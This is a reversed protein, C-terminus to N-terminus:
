QRESGRVNASKPIPNDATDILRTLTPTKVANANLKRTKERPFLHSVVCWALGRGISVLSNATPGVQGQLGKNQRESRTPCQRQLTDFRQMHPITPIRELRGGIGRSSSGGISACILCRPGSSEPIQSL